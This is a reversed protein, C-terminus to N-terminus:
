RQMGQGYAIVTEGVSPRGTPPAAAGPRRFFLLDYDTSTGIVDASAVLNDNHANTVAIGPAIVTAAGHAELVLDLSGDLPLYASAVSSNLFGGAADGASQPACGRSGGLWCSFSQPECAYRVLDRSPGAKSQILDRRAGM